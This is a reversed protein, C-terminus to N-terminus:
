VFKIKRAAVGSMKLLLWGHRFRSINTEGYTRNRYRIPIEVIKMNLRAAGFILDFDGFPDFDGFYARNAALREYDAKWLVKTGCLTDKLPQNLLYTFLKSFGINGLRNLFRMAESEMPYVLRTGHIYDAIGSVAAEYFKPLDEPTVTLDADLIMLLDGTAHDFGVRVADGKGKGKQKYLSVELPGRYAAIAREITQWTDDTSGGEVFILETRSGMLPTRALINAINGSENRAAVVVSVSPLGVVPQERKRLVYVRYVTLRNAAPLKAVYQNVVSALAPVPLPLLLRDEYKVVELGALAFLNALDSESLWNAPPAPLKLGAAEAIAVGNEWLFNFCSLFIRGNSALHATLNELLRQIDPVSHALRDCIIAEYREDRQFTLADGQALELEPHKRKANELAEPTIDIGHRVANPLAALTDGRGAGAELVRADSPILRQMVEIFDRRLFSSAVNFRAEESASRVFHRRWADQEPTEPPAVYPSRISHGNTTSGATAATRSTKTTTMSGSGKRM